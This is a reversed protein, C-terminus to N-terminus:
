SSSFSYDPVDAFGGAIHILDVDNIFQRLEYVDGLMIIKNKIKESPITDKIITKIRRRKSKWIAINSKSINKTFFSKKRNSTQQQQSLSQQSLQQENYIGM